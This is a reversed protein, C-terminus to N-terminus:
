SLSPPSPPAAPLCEALENPGRRRSPSRSLSPLRKKPDTVMSCTLAFIASRSKDTSYPSLNPYWYGYRSRCKRRASSSVAAEYLLLKLLCLSAWTTVWSADVYVCASLNM